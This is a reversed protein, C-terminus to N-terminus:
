HSAVSACKFCMTSYPITKLREANIPEGCVQCTGYDGSEIKSLAKIMGIETRASNGLYDEVENNENQTAQEAFDKEVPEDTHRVDDTIKALREDLEELMECLVSKLDEFDNM